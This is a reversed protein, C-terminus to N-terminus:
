YVKLTRKLERAVFSGSHHRSLEALAPMLAEQLQRVIETDPLALACVVVNNGIKHKALDIAGQEIIGTVLASQQEESGHQLIAQLIFNGKKHRCLAPTSRMLEHVLELTQDDSCHEILRELVRSAYTDQAAAVTHGMMEDIMFEVDKSPLVEICAQVVYNAERSLSAEWVRGQFKDAV